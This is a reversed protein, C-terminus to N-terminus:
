VLHSSRGGDEGDEEEEEEEEELATATRHRRVRVVREEKPTSLLGFISNLASICLWMSGHMSWRGGGWRRVATVQKKERSQGEM